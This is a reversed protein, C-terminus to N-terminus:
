KRSFHGIFHKAANEYKQIYDDTNKDKLRKIEDSFEKSNIYEEFLKYCKKNLIITFEGNEQVDESTVVKLNHYYNKLDKEMYLGKEKIIELLTMNLLEKNKEKKPNSVLQQPFKELYLRSGINKLKENLKKLLATNFFRTKIKKLVNDLDKKRRGRQLSRKRKLFTEDDSSSYSDLITFLSINEPYIVDFIKIEHFTMRGTLDHIETDKDHFYYDFKTQTSLYKSDLIELDFSLNIKNLEDISELSFSNSGSDFFSINDILM